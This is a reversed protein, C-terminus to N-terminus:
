IRRPANMAEIPSPTPGALPHRAGFTHDRDEIRALEAPARVAARLRGDEEFPATEDRAGRVILWPSGQCVIVAPRLGRRDALTVIGHLTRGDRTHEFTESAPV